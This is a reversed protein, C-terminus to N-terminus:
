GVPLVVQSPGFKGENNKHVMCVELVPFCQLVEVSSCGPPMCVQLLVVEDDMVYGAFGVCSQIDERSRQVNVLPFLVVLVYSYEQRLLEYSGDGNISDRLSLLSVEHGQYMVVGCCSVRPSVLCDLLGFVVERPWSHVMPNSLIHFPTCGALLIFDEDVAGLDGEVPNAGWYVSM